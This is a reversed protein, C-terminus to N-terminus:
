KIEEIEFSKKYVKVVELEALYRYERDLSDIAKEKDDKICIPGSGEKITQESAVGWCKRGILKKMNNIKVTDGAEFKKSM